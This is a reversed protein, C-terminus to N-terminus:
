GYSRSARISVGTRNNGFCPGGNNGHDYRQNGWGGHNNNWGGNNGGNSGNGFCGDNVYYPLTRTPERNDNYRRSNENYMQIRLQEDCGRQNQGGVRWDGTGQQRDQECDREHQSQRDYTQELNQQYAMREQRDQDALHRQRAMQIQTQMDLSDSGQGDNMGFPLPRYSGNAPSRDDDYFGSGSQQRQQLRITDPDVGRFDQNSDKRYDAGQTDMENFIAKKCHVNNIYVTGDSGVWQQTFNEPYENENGQEPKVYRYSSLADHSQDTNNTIRIKAAAMM